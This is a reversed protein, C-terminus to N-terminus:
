DSETVATIFTMHHTPWCVEFWDGRTRNEFSSLCTSWCVPFWFDSKKMWVFGGLFESMANYRLQSAALLCCSLFTTGQQNHAPFTCMCSCTASAAACPWVSDICCESTEVLTLQSTIRARTYFLATWPKHTRSILHFTAKAFYSLIGWPSCSFIMKLIM